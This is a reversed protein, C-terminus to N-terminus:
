EGSGNPQGAPGYQGGDVSDDLESADDILTWQEYYKQADLAGSLGCIAGRLENAMQEAENLKGQKNQIRRQLEQNRAEWKKRLTNGAHGVGYLFPAKMLDCTEPIHVTIGAGMAYGILWECSPRQERYEKTQAMDVGWVGMEAPGQMIAFGLLWSVTNTFYRWPAFYDLVSQMPFPVAAPLEPCEHAVYVPKDKVSLLWQWYDDGRDELWHKPHLEFHRDFRPVQGRPVLDSLTWIEWAPDGYPAFDRSAPAKGIIAINKQATEAPM